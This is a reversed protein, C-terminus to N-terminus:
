GGKIKKMVGSNYANRFWDRQEDENRAILPVGINIIHSNPQMIHRVRYVIDLADEFPQKSTDKIADLVLLIAVAPSRGIGAHCHVLLPQNRIMRGFKLIRRIHTEDALIIREEKQNADHFLEQHLSKAHPFEPRIRELKGKESNYVDAWLSVINWKDREQLHLYWAEDESLVKLESYPMSFDKIRKLAYQQDSWKM